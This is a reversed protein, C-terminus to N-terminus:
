KKSRLQACNAVLYQSSYIFRNIKEVFPSFSIHFSNNIILDLQELFATRNKVKPITKISVVM